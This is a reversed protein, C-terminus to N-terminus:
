CTTCGRATVSRSSARGRCTSAAAASHPIRASLLAQTEQKNNDRVQPHGGHVAGCPDLWCRMCILRFSHTTRMVSGEVGKPMIDKQTESSIM